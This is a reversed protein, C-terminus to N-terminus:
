SSELFDMALRTFIEPQELNALHAAQPIVKLRSHPIQRQLWEAQDPPTSQDKEGAMILTPCRISPIAASLDGDRLAACCGIYGVPDVSTFTEEIQRLVEPRRRGFDPTFFRAVVSPRIGAMGQDIVAQIRDAWLERSGVRAATNSAVLTLLREPANIALWLGLLGGLSIGCVDFRALGTQDAIALVDAGLDDLGYEGPHAMSRGHGPLDIAVVRRLTAFAKLQPAWLQSDSGLSHLLVLGRQDIPGQETWKLTGTRLRSRTM